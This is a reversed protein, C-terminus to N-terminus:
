PSRSWCRSRSCAHRRAEVRARGARLALTGGRQWLTLSSEVDSRSLGRYFYHLLEILGSCAYVVALVAIPAASAARWGAALASRSSSCRAAGGDLPARAAMRAAAAARGGAAAGGRAGPAASDRLRLRRRGDLRADLRALLRRVVGAVAPAGRRDHDVFLSGKGALDAFAKYAILLASRPKANRFSTEDVTLTEAMERRRAAHRDRYICCAHGYRTARARHCPDQFERSSMRAWVSITPLVKKRRRRM